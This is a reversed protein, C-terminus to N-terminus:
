LQLWREQGCHPESSWCFHAAACSGSQQGAHGIEEDGQGNGVGQAAEAFELGGDEVVQQQALGRLRSLDISDGFEAANGAEGGHEVGPAALHLVMGMHMDDDGGDHEVRAASQEAEGRFRIKEDVARRQGRAEAVPQFEGELGIM